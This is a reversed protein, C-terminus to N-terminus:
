SSGVWYWNKRLHEVEVRRVGIDEKSPPADNASYVFGSFHELVGRFTFFFVFQKGQLRYIALEGDDSLRRESGKLNVFVSLDPHAQNTKPEQRLVREAVATRSALQWRFDINRVIESFPVFYFMCLSAIALILPAFRFSTSRGKALFARAIVAIVAIAYFGWVAIEVMPELFVTLIGVLQWRVLSLILAISIAVALVKFSGSFVKRPIPASTDSPSAVQESLM